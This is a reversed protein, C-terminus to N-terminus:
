TQNDQKNRQTKEEAFKQILKPSIAGVMLLLVLEFDVTKQYVQYATIVFFFALFLLSQLRVYSKVGPAEELFKTKM